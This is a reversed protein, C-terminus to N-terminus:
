MDVGDICNLIGPSLTQFAVICIVAILFLILSYELIAQGDEEDLLSKSIPDKNIVMRLTAVLM